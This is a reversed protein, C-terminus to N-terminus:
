SGASRPSRSSRSRRRTRRRRDVQRREAGDRDFPSNRASRSPCGAGRITSVGAPMSFAIPRCPMPTRRNTSSFSGSSRARRARGDDDVHAARREVLVDFHRPDQRVGLADGCDLQVDRARVDLFAADLEAAAQVAGEVDDAGHALHCPQRQNGLQRRVDGVDRRERARGFVGAGVGHREDVRKERHDDVDLRAPRLDRVDDAAQASRRDPRDGDAHDVLAPLRHLNRDDPHAADGVRAVRELEHMAPAVATCTPVAFKTSGNM